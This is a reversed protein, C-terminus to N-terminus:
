SRLWDEKEETGIKELFCTINICNGLDMQHLWHGSVQVHITLKMNGAAAMSLVNASNIPSWNCIHNCRGNRLGSVLKLNFVSLGWRSRPEGVPWRRTVEARRGNFHCRHEYLSQSPSATTLIAPSYSCPPTQGLLPTNLKPRQPSLLGAVGSQTGLYLFLAGSFDGM